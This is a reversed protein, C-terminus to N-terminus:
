AREGEVEIKAFLQIGSAGQFLHAEQRMKKQHCVGLQNFKTTM